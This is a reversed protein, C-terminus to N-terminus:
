VEAQADLSAQIPERRKVYEAQIDAADRVALNEVVAMVVADIPKNRTTETQRASSGQAILVIEGAGAQVTDVAVLFKATPQYKLDLERVILLKMGELSPDKETAWVSGIVRGLFM